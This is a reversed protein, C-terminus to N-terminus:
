QQDIKEKELDYYAQVVNIADNVPMYFFERNDNVRYGQYQLFQHIDKETKESNLFPKFFVVIFPTPVGTASSLEKARENPDKTTHGIKVMDPMSANIMVYVFGNSNEAATNDETPEEDETSFINEPRSHGNYFTYTYGYAKLQTTKIGRENNISIIEYKGHTSNIFDDLQIDCVDFHAALAIFNTNGDPYSFRMRTDMSRILTLDTNLMCAAHHNIEAIILAKNGQYWNNANRYYSDIDLLERADSTYGDASKFDSLFGDEFSFIYKGNSLTNNVAKVKCVSEVFEQSISHNEIGKKINDEEEWEYISGFESSFRQIERESMPKDDTRCVAVLLNELLTFYGIIMPDTNLNDKPYLEGPNYGLESIHRAYIEGLTSNLDRENKFLVGNSLLSWGNKLLMPFDEDNSETISEADVTNSPKVIMESSSQPKDNKGQEKNSFLNRWFSMTIFSNIHKVSTKLISNCLYELFNNKRHNENKEQRKFHLCQEM